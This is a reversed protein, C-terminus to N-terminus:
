ASLLDAEAHLGFGRLAPIARPDARPRPSAALQRAFEAAADARAHPGDLRYRSPLLPGFLLPETLEPRARLDPAVGAERAIATAFTDHYEVPPQPTATAARMTADPPPDIAGSWLHTVWRAQLELLPWYPGM